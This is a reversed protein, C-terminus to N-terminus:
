RWKRSRVGPDLPVFRLLPSYIYRVWGSLLVLTVVIMVTIPRYLDVLSLLITSLVVLRMELRVLSLWRCLVIIMM